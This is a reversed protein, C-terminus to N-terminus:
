IKDHQNLIELGYISISVSNCLAFFSLVSQTRHKLQMMSATLYNNFEPTKTVSYVPWM